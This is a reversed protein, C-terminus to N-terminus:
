WTGLIVHFSAEEEAVPTGLEVEPSRKVVALYSGPRFRPDDTSASAQPRQLAIELLSTNQSPPSQNGLRSWWIGNAFRSSSLSQPNMGPLPTPQHDMFTRQLRPSAVLPDVPEAKAAAGAEVNSAWYYKGDKTRILLQDIHTDLHNVLPLPGTKEAPTGLELQRRSKRSRVTLYQTPRRSPLWGNALWQDGEWILEKQHHNSESPHYELPFVAVDDPFRLGGSPALGAYYSHRTWCVAHERRQDIQTVSRLRVRTGLGDALMAYAFLAASVLLAAVPTTLLMLHLRKWHRLVLYNVPGIALAFLSILVIFATVPALGVGPILFNWFDDNSQINSLGHRQYGLWRKSGTANLLWQWHATTGPFPDAAALAVIQGMGYERFVFPARAPPPPPPQSPQAPAANGGYAHVGSGDVIGDLSKNFLDRNPEQWGRAKPAKSIDESVPFDVLSELRPLQGWDDGLGYVWLNGGAAVWQLLAEFSEARDQKLRALEDLRICVIDLGSYEIWRVPLSLAPRAMATPLIPSATSNPPQTSLQQFLAGHQDFIEQPWAQALPTTDPLTDAVVLLKPFTEHYPPWSLTNPAHSFSLPALTQGDELVHIRYSDWFLTDPLLLTTEVSPSGAPLDIEQAVRLEHDDNATFQADLLVEISLTRDATTPTVPTIHVRVPRYGAGHLWRTDITVRLGNATGSHLAGTEGPMAAYSEHSTALAVLLLFAWALLPRNPTNARSFQLRGM